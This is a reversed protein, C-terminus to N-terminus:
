VGGDSDHAFSVQFEEDSQLSHYLVSVGVHCLQAAGEHEIMSPSCVTPDKM